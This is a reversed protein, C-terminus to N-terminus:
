GPFGKQITTGYTEIVSDKLKEVDIWVFLGLGAGIVSGPVNGWAFGVAAGSLTTLTAGLMRGTREYGLLEMQFQIVDALVAVAIPGYHVGLPFMGTVKVAIVRNVVPYIYSRVEASTAKALQLLKDLQRYAQPHLRYKYLFHYMWLVEGAPLHYRLVREERHYSYSQLSIVLSCNMIGEPNYRDTKVYEQLQFGCKVLDKGPHQSQCHQCPKRTNYSSAYLLCLLTLLLGPIIKM